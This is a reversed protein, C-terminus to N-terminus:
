DFLNAKSHESKILSSVLPHLVSSYTDVQSDEQGLGSFEVCPELNSPVLRKKDKWSESSNSTGVVRWDNIYEDFNLANTWELLEDVEWEVIHNPGLQEVADMMGQASREVLMATESHETRAHLCGRDYMQKLWEIKRRKKRTDVDQRRQLKSNHFEVKRGNTELTIIDGLLAAKGSLLRWGNNEVRHYWGAHDDQVQTRGNHIQRPVSRKQRPHTYDKPSNACMDVIPRHTYIKYYISPPFTTGGLRFRIHVGAAADMINAERPNVNKLLLRPDGQNRFRVLNKFYQFVRTDVHRRWTRQIMRAARHYVRQQRGDLEMMEEVPPSSPASEIAYNNKEM